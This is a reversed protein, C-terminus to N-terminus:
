CPMRMQQCPHLFNALSTVLALRPLIDACKRLEIYDCAYAEECRCSVLAVCESAILGRHQHPSTLHHLLLFSASASSHFLTCRRSEKCGSIVHICRLRVTTRFGDDRLVRDSAGDRGVM